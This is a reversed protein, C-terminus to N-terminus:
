ELSLRFEPEIIQNRTEVPITDPGRKQFFIRIFPVGLPYSRLWPWEKFSDEGGAPTEIL